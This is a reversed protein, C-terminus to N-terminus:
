TVLSGWDDMDDKVSGNEECDGTKEECEGDKEECDVLLV